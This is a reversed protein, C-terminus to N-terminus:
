LLLNCPAILNAASTHTISPYDINWRTGATATGLLQSAIAPSGNSLYIRTIGTKEVGAFYLVSEINRKAIKAKYLVDDVYFFLKLEGNFYELDDFDEDENYIWYALNIEHQM